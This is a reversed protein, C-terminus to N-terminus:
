KSNPNETEFIHNLNAMEEPTAYKRAFTRATSRYSLMRSYEPNKKRFRASNRKWLERKDEDAM